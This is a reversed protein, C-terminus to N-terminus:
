RQEETISKCASCQPVLAGLGMLQFGELTIVKYCKICQFHRPPVELWCKSTNDFYYLKSCHSPKSLLYEIDAFSSAAKAVQEALFGSAGDISAFGDRRFLVIQTSGFGTRNPNICKAVVTADYHKGKTGIRCLLASVDVGGARDAVEASIAAKLSTPGFITSMVNRFTM